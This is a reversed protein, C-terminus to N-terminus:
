GSSSFRCYHNPSAAMHLVRATHGKLEKLKQMRPYSWMLQNQLFWSSLLGERDQVVATLVGPALTSRISARVASNM